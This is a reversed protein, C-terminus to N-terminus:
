QQQQQILFFDNNMWVQGVGWRKNDQNYVVQHAVFNWAGNRQRCLCGTKTRYGVIFAGDGYNNNNTSSFSRKLGGNTRATERDRDSLSIQGSIHAVTTDTMVIRCCALSSTFFFSVGLRNLTAFTVSSSLRANWPLWYARIRNSKWDANRREAFLILDVKNTAADMRIDFEHVGARVHDDDSAEKLLPNLNNVDNTPYIDLPYNQMFTDPDDMFSKNLGGTM